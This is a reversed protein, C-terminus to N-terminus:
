KTYSFLHIIKMGEVGEYDEDFYENDLSNDATHYHDMANDDFMSIDNIQSHIYNGDDEMEYNEVDGVEDGTPLLFTSVDDTHALDNATAFSDTNNLEGDGTSLENAFTHCRYLNVAFGDEFKEEQKDFDTENDSSILILPLTNNSPTVIEDENVSYLEIIQSDRDKFSHDSLNQDNFEFESNMDRVEANATLM